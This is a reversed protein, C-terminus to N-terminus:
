RGDHECNRGGALCPLTCPTYGLPLISVSCQSFFKDYRHRVPTYRFSTHARHHTRGISPHIGSLPTHAQCSHIHRVHTHSHGAPTHASPTHAGSMPTHVQCLHTHGASAYVQCLGPKTNLTWLVHLIRCIGMSLATCHFKPCFVQVSKKTQKNVFSSISIALSCVSM